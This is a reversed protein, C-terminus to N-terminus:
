LMFKSMEELYMEAYNIKFPFILGDPGNRHRDIKYRMEGKDKEEKTQNLTLVIDAIQSPEYSWFGDEATVDNESWKSARGAQQASWVAVDHRTGMARLGRATAGLEESRNGSGSLSGMENLYDVIVLGPKYANVLAECDATTAGGSPFIHIYLNNKMKKKVKDFRVDYRTKVQEKSDEFSIHLVDEGSLIGNVGLNIMTLSKGSSKPGIILGFNQKHLGGGMPRDLCKFGTTVYRYDAIEITDKFYDLTTSYILETGKLIEKKAERIKDERILALAKDIGSELKKKELFAIVKSLVFDKDLEVSLNKKILDYQQAECKDSLYEIFTSFTPYKGFEKRYEKVKIIVWRALPDKPEFGFAWLEPKDFCLRLFSFEVKTTIM